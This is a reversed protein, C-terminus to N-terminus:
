KAGGFSLSGISGGLKLKMATSRHYPEGYLAFVPAGAWDLVDQLRLDQHNSHSCHFIPWKDDMQVIYAGDDDRGGTHQSAWPCHCRNKTGGALQRDEGVEIGRHRLVAALDLTCLNVNCNKIFDWEGPEFAKKSAEGPLVPVPIVELDADDPVLLDEGDKYTEMIGAPDWAGQLFYIQAPKRMCGLDLAERYEKLGLHAV